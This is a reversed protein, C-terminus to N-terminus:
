SFLWDFSERRREADRKRQEAKRDREDQSDPSAPDDFLWKYGKKVSRESRKPSDSPTNKRQKTRKIHAVRSRHGTTRTKSPASSIIHLVKYVYSGFRGQTDRRREVFEILGLAQLTHLHRQITRTSKGLTKALTLMKPFALGTRNDAYDTLACLTPVMEPVVGQAILDFVKPIRTFKKGAM